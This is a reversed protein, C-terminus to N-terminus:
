ILMSQCHSLGSAEQHGAQAVVSLAPRGAELLDDVFRRSNDERVLPTIRDVLNPIELVLIVADMCLVHVRGATEVREATGAEAAGAPCPSYTAGVYWESPDSKSQIDQQRTCCYKM